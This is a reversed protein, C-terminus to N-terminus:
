VETGHKLAERECHLCVRIKPKETFVEAIQASSMDIRGCIPADHGGVAHAIQSGSLRLYNYGSPYGM